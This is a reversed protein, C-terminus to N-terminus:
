SYFAAGFLGADNRSVLMYSYASSNTNVEVAAEVEVVLVRSRSSNGGDSDNCCRSRGPFSSSSFATQSFPSRQGYSEKCPEQQKPMDRPLLSGAAARAREHARM